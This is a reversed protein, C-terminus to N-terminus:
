SCFKMKNNLGSKVQDTQLQPRLCAQQWYDLVFVWMEKEGKCRCCSSMLLRGLSGGPIMFFNPLQVAKITDKGKNHYFLTVADWFRVSCSLCLCANRYLSIAKLLITIRIKCHLRCVNHSMSYLADSSPLTIQEVTLIVLITCSIIKAFVFLFAWVEENHM